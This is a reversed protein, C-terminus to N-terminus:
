VRALSSDRFWCHDCIHSGRKQDDPLTCANEKHVYPENNELIARGGNPIYGVGGHSDTVIKVKNGDLDQAIELEICGICEGMVTMIYSKCKDGIKLEDHTM